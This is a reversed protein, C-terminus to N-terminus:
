EAISAISDDDSIFEANDQEFNSLSRQIKSSRGEAESIAKSALDLRTRTKGLLDSFKVFEKRV